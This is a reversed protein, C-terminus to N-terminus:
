EDGDDSNIGVEQTFFVAHLPLDLDPNKRQEVYMKLSDILQEFNPVFRCLKEITCKLDDASIGIDNCPLINVFNILTNVFKPMSSAKLTSDKVTEELIKKIIPTNISVNTAAGSAILYEAAELSDFFAALYLPTLSTDKGIDKDVGKNILDEIMQKDNYVAAVHLVSINLRGILTQDDSTNVVTADKNLLFDYVDRNNNIAAIFLPTAGLINVAKINAERRLLFEVVNLKGHFAATHLPTARAKDTIDVDIEKLEDIFYKVVHLHGNQAAAHLSTWGDENVDKPHAKKGILYKIVDLHGNSSASHLPTFSPTKDKVEAGNKILIEIIDLWNAFAAVHLPTWEGLKVNVIDRLQHEKELKELFNKLDELNDSKRAARFKAHLLYVNYQEPELIKLVNIHGNSAALVAATRGINDKIDVLRNDENVLIEVIDSYGNFAAVHLLTWDSAKKTSLSNYVITSKIDIKAGKDVFLKVVSAHGNEVAMYLPTRNYKDKADIKSFKEKMLIAEDLIAKVAEDSGNEALLHLPTANNYGYTPITNFNFYFEKILERYGSAYSWVSTVHSTNEKSINENNGILTLAEKIVEEEGNEDKLKLRIAEQVLRHISAVGESYEIMSYKDCLEVGDCDFMKSAHIKDPALYAMVNLINIAKKGHDQDVKIKELTTTWTTLVTQSYRNGVKYYDKNLLETNEDLKKLYDSIKFRGSGRKKFTKDEQNIYAVAQRLALPLYQLRKTLKEIDGKQLGDKIEISDKIFMTAEKQTFVDLEMVDIQGECGLDWNRNRSTILIYPREDYPYLSTPLFKEIVTYEEANNFIFLSKVDIFRKYVNKVISKIQREQMNEGIKEDILINLENVALEKFSMTLSEHTESNIWIINEDYHKAYEKAYKRVLETKGIGGLGTVAVMREILVRRGKNQLKEHLCKLENDRGTFLIVPDKMGYYIPKREQISRPRGDMKDIRKNFNKIENRLSKNLFLDDGEYMKNLAEKAKEKVEELSLIDENLIQTRNSTGIKVLNEYVESTKCKKDSIEITHGLKPMKPVTQMITTIISQRSKGLMVGKTILDVSVDMDPNDQKYQNVYNIIRKTADIALKEIARTLYKDTIMNFQNQYNHFINGGVEALMNGLEDDERIPRFVEDVTKAKKRHIKNSFYRGAVVLPRIAISVWPHFEEIVKTATEEVVNGATTNNELSTEDRYRDLIKIFNRVFTKIFIELRECAKKKNPDLSISDSDVQTSLQPQPQQNAQDAKHEHPENPLEQM